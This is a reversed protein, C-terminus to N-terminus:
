TASISKATASRWENPYMWRYLLKVGCWVWFFFFFRTGDLLVVKRRRRLSKFGSLKIISRDPWKFNISKPNLLSPHFVFYVLVDKRSNPGASPLLLVSSCSARLFFFFFKSRRPQVAVHLKNELSFCSSAGGSLALLSRLSFGRMRLFQDTTPEGSYMATSIKCFSPYSWKHSKQDSPTIKYSNIKPAVGKPAGVASWTKLLMLYAVLVVKNYSQSMMKQDCMLGRWFDSIPWQSKLTRRTSITNLVRDAYLAPIKNLPEDACWSISQSCLTYVFDFLVREEASDVKIADFIHIGRKDRVYTVSYIEERLSATKRM